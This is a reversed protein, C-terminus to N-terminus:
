NWMRPDMEIPAKEVISAHSAGWNPHFLLNWEIDVVISPVKLPVFPSSGFHKDGVARTISTNTHWAPDLSAPSIEAPTFATAPIEITLRIYHVPPTKLHVRTEM